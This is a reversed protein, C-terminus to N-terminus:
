KKLNHFLTFVKRHAIDACFVFTYFFTPSIREKPKEIPRSTHQTFGFTSNTHNALITKFFHANHFFLFVSANAKPDVTNHNMQETVKYKNSDNM